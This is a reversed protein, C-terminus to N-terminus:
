VDLEQPTQGASLTQARLALHPNTSAVRSAPATSSSEERTFLIPFARNCVDFPLRNRLVKFLVGGSGDDKLVVAEDRVCESYHNADLAKGQWADSDPWLPKVRIVRM